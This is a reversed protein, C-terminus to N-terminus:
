RFYERLAEEDFKRPNNKSRGFFKATAIRKSIKGDLSQQLERLGFKQILNDMLVPLEAVSRCGLYRAIESLRANMFNLGRPDSATEEHTEINYRTVTPLNLFVAIGHPVGEEASLGYSLAHALTTQSIAIAKGSWYAAKQLGALHEKAMLHARDVEVWHERLLTLARASYCLSEPNSQISWHSEVAHSFADLACSIVIREPLSELLSSDLIVRDPLIRSDALSEKRGNVYYTAFPTVESGTGATTPVAVHHRISTSRHHLIKALDIVSGGGISVITDPEWNGPDFLVRQAEEINELTLLPTSLRYSRVESRHSRSLLHHSYDENRSVLLCRKSELCDLISSLQSISGRGEILESQARAALIEAIQKQPLHTPRGLKENQDRRCKIHLFRLASVRKGEELATQLETLTEVRRVWPYGCARAVESLDTSSSATWQGGTSDHAENDLLIHFLNPPKCHGITALNGLHMLAAGDTDFVCVDRQPMSRAYGLAVGSSCGMGGIGYFASAHGHGQSENIEFLERSAKGISSVFFTSPPLEKRLSEIAERRSLSYLESAGKEKESHSPKRLRNRPFLLAVPLRNETAERFLKSCQNVWDSPDQSLVEHTVGALDLLPSTIRGMLLHQPEDSGSEVDGRMGVMLIAPIRYSDELFLSTLPNIINGLGSNQLYVLSPKGTALFQGLALAMAEAENTAIQHDMEPTLSIAEVLTQLTSDPVGVCNKIGQKKFEELLLTPEIGTIM